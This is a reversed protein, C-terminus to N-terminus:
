LLGQILPELEEARMWGPHYLRVIGKRDVLVLTPTTSVGFSVWNQASLPKPMWEPMPYARQWPGEIYAIEQEPTADEGGAAYGFLQTPGIIRLGQDAYKAYLDVLIPKQLKCDACWHAWFYFLAVKGKVEVPVPKGISRDTAVQPMPKGELDLLLLNKQIRTEISTDRYKDRSERLFAVARGRDGMADYSLGLVEISAGLATALYSSSDVGNAAAAKSVQRYAEDGYTEALEWNQVFVGARAVWSLAALLEPDDASRNSREREVLNRADLAAAPTKVFALQKARAALLNAQMQAAPAAAAALFGFVLGLALRQMLSPEYALVPFNRGGGRETYM